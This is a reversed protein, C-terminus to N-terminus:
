ADTFASRNPLGGSYICEIATIYFDYLPQPDGSNRCPGYIWGNTTVGCLNTSQFIQADLTTLPGTKLVPSFQGQLQQGFVYWGSSLTAPRAAYQSGTATRYKEIQFQNIPTSSLGIGSQVPRSRVFAISPMDYFDSSPFFGQDYAIRDGVRGFNIIYDEYNTTQSSWCLYSQKTARITMELEKSFYSYYAWATDESSKTLVYVGSSPVTVIDASIKNYRNPQEAITGQGSALGIEAANPVSVTM